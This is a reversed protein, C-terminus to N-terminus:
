AIIRKLWREVIPGGKSPFRHGGDLLHFEVDDARLGLRGAYAETVAPPFIQDERRAIHLLAAPVKKYEGSEWDKPIGGCIGVVGRVAGPYTAAFRYNLGVPQSFGVVMRRAPGIDHEEGEAELAHRLMMHHTRRWQDFDASTAWSFGAASDPANSPYFASPAQLSAIVHDPGFMTRTLRLMVEPTSGYGHLAAILLTRDTIQDPVYVLYPCDLKVAISRRHITERAM